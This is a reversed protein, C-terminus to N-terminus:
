YIGAIVEGCSACSGAVMRTALVRFGMREIVCANCSPCYTSEHRDGPLNGTYVYKLGKNKGIRYARHLSETETRARDLMHYDPHFASIHWPINDDLEAIFGAIQELEAESDNFGPIVLTTIELFTGNEHLAAISDLVPKLHAGIVRRYSDDSFCKLDINAAKILEGFDSIMERSMYGNSVFVSDIGQKRAEVAVDYALEAFITPETYTFSITECGNDKAAQVLRSSSVSEGPLLGENQQPWQSIDHNQCFRCRFNCGVTAMSFSFSGPKVHFLPKKEIPDIHTAIVKDYVLTYLTGDQNERVGCIGKKGPKILCRHACLGCRVRGGEEKKYWRAEKM